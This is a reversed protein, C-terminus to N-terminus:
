AYLIHKFMMLSHKQNVGEIAKNVFNIYLLRINVLILAAHICLQELAENGYFHCFVLIVVLHINVFIELTNLILNLSNKM